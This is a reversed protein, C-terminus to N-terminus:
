VIMSAIKRSKDYLMQKTEEAKKKAAATEAKDFKSSSIIKDIKSLYVEQIKELLEEGSDYGEPLSNSQELSEAIGKVTETIDAIRVEEKMGPHEQLRDSVTDGGLFKVIDVGWNNKDTSVTKTETDKRQRFPVVKGDRTKAQVGLDSISINLAEALASYISASLVGKTGYEPALATSWEVRGKFIAVLDVQAYDQTGIQVIVNKGTESEFGPQQESFEKVATMYQSVTQATTMGDIEPIIFQIDIDGYERDPNQQLDRKYYTGSGVPRGIEIEPINQQKLYQNFQSEFEQMKSVVQDVTEPTIRTGQTKVSAWGGELIESMRM